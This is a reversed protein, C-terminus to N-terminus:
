KTRGFVFLQRTMLQAMSREAAVILAVALLAALGAVCLWSFWDGTRAYLTPIRGMPLQATMTRDGDAYFDSMSLVRGWPDIAASLGSAAARVLPMGNEIARFVHMQFHINKIAKWENVPLILLDADNQGAQRIFEPFDAEFCIAAAMRGTDTSVVPIGDDGRRLISAEWGSVPRNKLHSTVIRGSPDVLVLKNEFPLREGLHITGMGMALYIGEDAALRRARELFAPEDDAFVLLNQEPWVILRAGARAERRSGELFWDHLRSLTGNLREHETAAVRGESIRTIEGPAFLDIPRNLTATRVSARDTPAAMLRVGGALLISVLVITYTLVPGRIETWNFGRNWALEFTSAFWAVVFTIGWIGVVASLQMLPMFGYQSYAISWWSAGSTLRSRLFEATVLAMPFILTALAGDIRPSAIRDIVFPLTVITAEVVFILLYVPLPIPLTDRNAIALSVYLALWLFTAGSMAPISRSAHVLAALGIWAAPPFALRTAVGFLSAGVLLSLISGTQAM